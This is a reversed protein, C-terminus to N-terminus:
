SDWPLETLARSVYRANSSSSHVPRFVTPAATPRISPWCGVGYGPRARRAQAESDLAAVPVACATQSFSAFITKVDREVDSRNGRLWKLSMALRASPISAMPRMVHKGWVAIDEGASTPGACSTKGATAADASGNAVAVGSSADARELILVAVLTDGARVRVRTLRPWDTRRMAAPSVWRAVVGIERNGPFM